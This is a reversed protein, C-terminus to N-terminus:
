EHDALPQARNYYGVATCYTASLCSVGLLIASTATGNKPVPAPQV